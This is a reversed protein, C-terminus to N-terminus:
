PSAHIPLKAGDIVTITTIGHVWRAPKVDSPVIVQLAGGEENLPKGDEDLAIWVSRNGISPLLEPLSFDATYGDFAQVIVIFQLEHHKIRPNVNPHAAEILSLLPVCRAAHTQGKITYTVPQVDSKLERSIRDADWTGATKVDGTVTFSAAADAAVEPSPLFATGLVVACAWLHKRIVDRM